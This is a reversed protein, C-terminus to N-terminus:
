SLRRARTAPVALYAAPASDVRELASFVSCRRARGWRGWRSRPPGGGCPPRRLSSGPAAAAALLPASIALLAARAPVPSTRRAGAGSARSGASRLPPWGRCAAPGEREGAGPLIVTLDRAELSRLDDSVEISGAMFAGGPGAPGVVRPGAAGQVCVWSVGILPVEAVAPSPSDACAPRAQALLDRIVGGRGGKGGHGM